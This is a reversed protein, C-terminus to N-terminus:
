PDLVRLNKKIICFEHIDWNNAGCQYFAGRCFAVGGREEQPLHVQCLARETTSDLVNFM